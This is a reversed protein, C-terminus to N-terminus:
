YVFELQGRLVVIINKIPSSEYVFPRDSRLYEQLLRGSRYVEIQHLLEDRNDRNQGFVILVAELWM